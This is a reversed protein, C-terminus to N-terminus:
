FRIKKRLGGEGCIECKHPSGRLSRVRAHLKHYANSGVKEAYPRPRNLDILGLIRAQRCLSSKIRGMKVALLNLQGADRYELYENRIRDLEDPTFIDVKNNKGLKVLREHVSQGCMGLEKATKWVNNHRSYAELLIEDPVKKM